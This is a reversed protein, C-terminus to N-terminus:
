GEKILSEAQEADEAVSIKDELGVMKLVRIVYDNALVVFKMGKDRVMKLAQVLLGIGSSNLMDVTKLDIVVGTVPQESIWSELESNLLYAQEFTADENYQIWCIGQKIEYTSKM